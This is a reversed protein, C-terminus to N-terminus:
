CCKWHLKRPDKIWKDAMHYHKDWRSDNYSEVTELNRYYNISAVWIRVWVYLILISLSIGGLLIFLWLWNLSMFPDEFFLIKAEIDYYCQEKQGLDYQQYFLNVHAEITSNKYFTYNKNLDHLHFTRNAYWFYDLCNNFHQEVVTCTDSRINKYTYMYPKVYGFYFICSIIGLSLIMTVTWYIAGTFWIPLLRCRESKSVM